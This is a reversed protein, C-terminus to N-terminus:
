GGPSVRLIRDDAAAPDGRGDRNSTSLWLTGDPAAVVTRLRGYTGVFFAQPEGVSGDAHVPIRWLRQGRLAALWLYGDLYAIGAPSAQSTPWQLLPNRFRGNQSRGEVEPWGYNAGKVILNLEDWTSAGFESAWLRGRDDFTLGEVNRHGLTWVPSDPRPNGPAPRGEATIRLIKGALSDPDQALGRNGTEGTAAYLYGDPGFTLRGGDHIPGRPIGSLIVKPEGLRGNEYSLRAIRNDEAATYYVFVLHDRGFDPSVALGLVGGEGGPQAADVRGADRVEGRAPVALIRKSDREAVLASGDPLFAIGWPVSLREAV